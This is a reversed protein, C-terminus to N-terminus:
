DDPLDFVGHLEIIKYAVPKGDREQVLVDVDFGIKFINDDGERMEHKIRQKAIESAYIVPLSKKTVEPVVAREGSRKDTKADGVDPRTFYLLAHRVDRGSAGDIRRVGNRATDLVQQAERPSFRFAAKIERKKDEFVAVEIASVSNPDRATAQVVNAWSELDSKTLGPPVLGRALAKFKEIWDDVFAIAEAIQEHQAALSPYILPILPLLDSIISGSRIEHIYITASRNPSDTEEFFRHFQNAVSTISAVFDTLEVPRSNEIRFSIVYHPEANEQDFVYENM